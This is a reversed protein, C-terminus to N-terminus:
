YYEYSLDMHELLSLVKNKIENMMWENMWVMQFLTSSVQQAFYIM